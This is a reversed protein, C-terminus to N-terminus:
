QPEVFAHFVRLGLERNDNANKLVPLLAPVFTNDVAIRIEAMEGTGLQAATVPIKKLVEGTMQFSAITQDGVRISVNQQQGLVQPSGEADLIFLVNRKPNRFALTADRKTWQWELNANEPAVETPYWGDKFILFINETQPLLDFRAVEYAQHGKDAGGALTVRKGKGTYLGLEVTAQGVYPYVPTFMTRTYEVPQGAQWQSTPVPPQHDDTWMMERSGAELFHVFVTYDGDIKVGRAPVFRFKLEVPSGLPVRSHGLSLSVTAAPPEQPAKRACGALVSLVLCSVVCLGLTRMKM